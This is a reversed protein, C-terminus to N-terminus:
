GGSLRASWARSRGRGDLRWGYLWDYQAMLFSSPAYKLTLNRAAAMAGDLHYIEGNRKSATQVSAIRPRREAEYARIATEMDTSEAACRAAVVADELALVGGQALFPLVPHAADGLLAIRGRTFTSPVALEHLAWKRWETVAGILDQADQAFARVGHQVWSPHVRTSWDQNVADDQLVVVLAIALGGQVPYHVIHGHPSLWVGTEDARIAKPVLEVPVVARLACKGSFTPSAEGFFRQRLPSWLGDAVIVAEGRYVGGEATHVTVAEGRLDDVDTVDQNLHVAIGDVDQITQYLALQLDSRHAVWYPAGHRNEIWSGLPLEALRQGTDGEFVAIREPKGVYPALRQDVNLSTLIRMGNPGIQIGAGDESLASRRELIDVQFGRQRFALAAAMGGIGGGVIVLRRVRESSAAAETTGTMDATQPM